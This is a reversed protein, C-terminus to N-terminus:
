FEQNLFVHHFPLSLFYIHEHNTLWPKSKSDYNKSRLKIDYYSLIKVGYTLTKLYNQSILAVQWWKLKYIM